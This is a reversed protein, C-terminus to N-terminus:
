LVKQYLAVYYTYDAHSDNLTSVFIWKEDNSLSDFDPYVFQCYSIMM